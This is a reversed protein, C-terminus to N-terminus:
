VACSRMRRKRMKTACGTTKTLKLPEHLPECHHHLERHNVDHGHKGNSFSLIEHPHLIALMAWPWKQSHLCHHLENACHAQAKVSAFDSWLRRTLFSM